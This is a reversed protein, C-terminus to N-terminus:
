RVWGEFLKLQHLAPAMIGGDKSHGFGAVHGLEHLAAFDIAVDRVGDSVPLGVHWNITADFNIYVMPQKYVTHACGLGAPYAGYKRPLWWDFMLGALAPTGVSRSFMLQCVGERNTQQVAGHVAKKFRAPFHNSFTYYLM